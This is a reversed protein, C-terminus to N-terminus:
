SYLISISQSYGGGHKTSITMAAVSVTRSPVSAAIYDVSYPSMQHCRTVCDANQLVMSHVEWVSYFQAFGSLESHLTLFKLM